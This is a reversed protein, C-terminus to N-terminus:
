GWLATRNRLMCTQGPIETASGREPDPSGNPACAAAWHKAPTDDRATTPPSGKGGTGSEIVGGASPDGESDESAWKQSLPAGFEDRRWGM